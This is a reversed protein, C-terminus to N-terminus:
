CKEEEKNKFFALSKNLIFHKFFLHASLHGSPIVYRKPKGMREWLDDSSKRPIFFDFMATFFLTKRPLIFKAFLSPDYTFCPPMDKLMTLSTFNIIAKGFLKHKKECEKPNCSKNEEYSIRLVRTAISKWTIYEYNGGTVVFVGKEIRKDLAMTITSVMGGFSFGMIYINKFGINELYDVCTIVDTVAQDFRTALQVDTGKIFAIGSKQGLPTREFHYPLVPMITTYGDQSFRKPYYMLPEFNKQGTGHIFVIAGKPHDSNYLIAKVHDVKPDGSPKLSEFELLDFDYGHSVKYEAIGDKQYM